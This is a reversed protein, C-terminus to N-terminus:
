RILIYLYDYLIISNYVLALVRVSTGIPYPYTHRGRTNAYKIFKAEIKLTQYFLIFFVLAQDRKKTTVLKIVNKVFFFFM